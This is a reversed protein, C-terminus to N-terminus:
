DLNMKFNQITKRVPIIMEIPSRKKNELFVNVEEKSCDLITMFFVAEAIRGLTKKLWKIARTNIV